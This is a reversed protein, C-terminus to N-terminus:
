MEEGLAVYLVVRTLKSQNSKYNCRELSVLVSSTRKRFLVCLFMEKQRERKKRKENKKGEQPM